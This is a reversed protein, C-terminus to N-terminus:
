KVAEALPLVCLEKLLALVFLSPCLIARAQVPEQDLLLACKRAQLKDSAPLRHSTDCVGKQRWACSCVAEAAGVWCDGAGM